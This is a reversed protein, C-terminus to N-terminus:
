KTVEGGWDCGPCRERRSGNGSHGESCNWGYSTINPDHNHYEGDEDYYPAAYILTTMGPHVTLRSQKGESVCTLCKMTPESQDRRGGCSFVGSPAAGCCLLM